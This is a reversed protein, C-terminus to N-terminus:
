SKLSKIEDQLHAIVDTLRAILATEPQPLEFSLYGIARWMEMIAETSVSFPTYDPNDSKLILTENKTKDFFVRKYVIGEDDTILVYAKGEKVEKVDSVYDCFIYSGDAVPLMSDGRIQFVRYTRETALEKVPMSFFPLQGVYVPDAYGSLYGAAAQIPVICIQEDNDRDVMITLIKEKSGTYVPKGKELDVTLLEDLTVGLLEAMKELVPLKPVGRGEEYSGVLSRKIALMDAFEGQTIGKKKRLFRINEKFYIM